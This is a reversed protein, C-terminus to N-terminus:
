RFVSVLWPDMKEGSFAEIAGNIEMFVLVRDGSEYARYQGLWFERSQASSREGRVEGQRKLRYEREGVTLAMEAPLEQAEEARVRYPAGDILALALEQADEGSLQWVMWEMGAARCHTLASITFIGEPLEVADGPRARRLEM